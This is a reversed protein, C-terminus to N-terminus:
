EGTENNPVYVRYGFEYKEYNLLVRRIHNYDLLARLFLSKRQESDEILEGCYLENGSTLGRM